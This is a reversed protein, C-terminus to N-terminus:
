GAASLEIQLGYLLQRATGSDTQSTHHRGSNCYQVESFASYNASFPFTVKVTHPHMKQNDRSKFHLEAKTSFSLYGEFSDEFDPHVNRHCWARQSPPLSTRSWLYQDAQGFGRSGHSNTFQTIHGTSLCGITDLVACSKNCSCSINHKCYLLM